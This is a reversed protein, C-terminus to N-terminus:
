DAIEKLASDLERKKAEDFYPNFQLSIVSRGDIRAFTMSGPECLTQGAVTMRIAPHTPEARDFVNSFRPMKNVDVKYKSLQRFLLEPDLGIVKVLEHQAGKKTGEDQFSALLSSKIPVKKINGLLDRRLPKQRLLSDERLGCFSLLAQQVEYGRKTM